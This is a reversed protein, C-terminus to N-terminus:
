FAANEAINLNLLLAFAGLATLGESSKKVEEATFHKM